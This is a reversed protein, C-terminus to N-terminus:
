EDEGKMSQLAREILSKTVQLREGRELDSLNSKREIQHQYRLRLYEAFVPDRVDYRFGYEELQMNIKALETKEDVTLPESKSSLLRKRELLKLTTNDLAAALGFMDSMVLGSYGMGRPHIEPQQSSISLSDPDRRLIQVQEKELDAISIPNHTTLVIHISNRKKDTEGVFEQLFNLYDVSWKPNLHTDPEDLLFLSEEESTFRILGLVTLLQQEGESLERFTVSGDINRLKVRIRVEDILESVYTSEIDRFFERPTQQSMLDSLAKLNPVYLYRFGLNKKNWLSVEVRRKIRIPALSVALLKDLFRRVVGKAGWFFDEDGTRDWPPQRLVFLVSDLSGEEEIGLQENLLRTVAEDKQLIFALLVFQSHVPRAYFLRRLGPDEGRRLKADHQVLYKRFVEEMRNSTGSYYGFVYKPLYLDQADLFKTFSIKEGSDEHAFPLKHQVHPKVGLNKLSQVHIIYKEGDRKPNADISVWYDRIKYRLKYQFSPMRKKMVLDRFLTALSELVNSKGTGNWGIVVTIWNNEDFNIMVDKLNKYEGIWFRDLRM